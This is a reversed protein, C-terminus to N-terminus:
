TRGSGRPGLRRARGDRWGDVVARLAARKAPRGLAQAAFTGLIAGRRAATGFPGFPRDREAAVLTNRAGYYLNHTSAREGGTSASVLHWAVADPVFLLAFGASRIRVSWDLDEVYAFLAEDLPGVRDIAARSVAMLAGTARDVPEVAAYAPGDPQGYGRVRGHYGLWSRVTGGAYWLRDTGDDFFVKGALAGADPRDAAVAAFAAFTGPAVRADNNLLVVWEAGHDLAHRIATNNGGAYGLNGGNEVVAVDPYAARIVDVSGDTSGNDAVVVGVPPDDTLAALSALCRLTDDRGNWNLVIAWWRASARSAM